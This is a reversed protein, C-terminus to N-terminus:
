RNPAAYSSIRSAILDSLSDSAMVANSCRGADDLIDDAICLSRRRSLM